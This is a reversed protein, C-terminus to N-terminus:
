AAGAEVLGNINSWGYSVEVLDTGGIAITKSSVKEGGLSEYFRRTAHNDKLVWVLMSDLGDALLREAVASVLRRGLGRRQYEVLLYVFFLEARYAPNGERERGGGAFGIVEGGYQQAVFIRGVSRDQSLVSEWWSEGDGYSLNALHEDPVIGAYTTRWSDIHVRAIAGADAPESKRIRM